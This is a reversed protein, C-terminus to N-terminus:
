AGSVRGDIKRMDATLFAAAVKPKKRGFAALSM